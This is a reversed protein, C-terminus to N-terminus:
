LKTEKLMEKLKEREEENLMVTEGFPALDPLLFRFEYVAFTIKDGSKLRVPMNAQLTKDNLSTGNTSRNDELYYRGNKYEITAHLSSIEKQPIVIDNSLDRGITVNQKYIGLSKSDSTIANEVDILEAQMQPETSIEAEEPAGLWKSATKTKSKRIYFVLIVAMALVILIGFFFAVPAPKEEQHPLRTPLPQSPEMKEEVPKLPIIEPKELSQAEATPEPKSVISRIEEFVSRIDEVSYARYYEGDTKLALTQILRFDAKETLAVGFIRIGLKLSEQTLQEKLWKESEFDKAPNGTDVIGDTLLIIIKRSGQEGNTKLEYIAREVAAPTNTFQGRYDIRSLSQLYRTATDPEQISSLPEVLRADNDFIVMGLRMFPDMNGLFDAVADRVIFGPDNKLMSGSNDLVFVIDLRPTLGVEGPEPAEGAYSRINILLTLLFITVLTRNMTAM